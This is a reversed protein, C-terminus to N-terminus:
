PIPPTSAIPTGYHRAAHLIAERSADEAGIKHAIHRMHTKVTDESIVLRRAIEKRALRREKETLVLLDLVARERESLCALVAFPRADSVSDQIGIRPGPPAAIMAPPQSGPREMPGPVDIRAIICQPMEADATLATACVQVNILSGDSRRYRCVSITHHGLAVTHEIHADIETRRHDAIDYLTLSSVDGETYSLLNCFAPNADVLRRTAVNVVIFGETTQAMVAHYRAEEWGRMLEVRRLERQRRRSYAIGVLALAVLIALVEETQWRGNGMLPIALYGFPDAWFAFALLTGLGLALLVLERRAASCCDGM